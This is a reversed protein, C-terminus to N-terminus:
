IAITCGFAYMSGFQPTTYAPTGAPTTQASLGTWGTVGLCSAPLSAAHVAVWPASGHSAAASAAAARASLDAPITHCDPFPHDACDLVRAYPVLNVQDEATIQQRIILWTWGLM